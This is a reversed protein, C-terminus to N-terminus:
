VPVYQFGVRERVDQHLQTLPALLPGGMRLQV